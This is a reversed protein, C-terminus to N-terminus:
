GNSNVTMDKAISLNGHIVLTVDSSLNIISTMDLTVDANCTYSIGSTFTCNFPSAGLNGPLSYTAAQGPICVVCLLWFALSARIQRPFLPSPVDIM